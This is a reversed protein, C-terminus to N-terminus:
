GRRVEEAAPQNSCDAVENRGVPGVALLCPFEGKTIM